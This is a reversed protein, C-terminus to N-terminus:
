KLRLSMGKPMFGSAQRIGPVCAGEHFLHMTPSQNSNEFTLIYERGEGPVRAYEAGPCDIHTGDLYLLSSNAILLCAVVYPDLPFQGSHMMEYRANRASYGPFLGGLQVAAINYDGRTKAEWEQYFQSLCPLPRTQVANLGQTLESIDIKRYMGAVKIVHRLCYGYDLDYPDPVGLLKGIFSLKPWITLMEAGVPLEYSTGHPRAREIKEAEERGKLGLGFAREYCAVGYTLHNSPFSSIVDRAGSAETSTSSVEHVFPNEAQTVWFDGPPRLIAAFQTRDVGSLADGQRILEALLHSNEVLGDIQEKTPNQDTIVKLIHSAQGWSGETRAM